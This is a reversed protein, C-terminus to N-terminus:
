CMMAFAFAARALYDGPVRRRSAAPAANGVPQERLVLGREANFGRIKCASRLLMLRYFQQAQIQTQKNILPLYIQRKDKIFASPSLVGRPLVKGTVSAIPGM